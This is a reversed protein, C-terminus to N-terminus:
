LGQFLIWVCTVFGGTWFLSRASGWNKIYCLGYILRCAIFVMAATHVSAPMTSSLNAIIVAAAFFPFAEFSNLQAYHARRQWGELKDQFERVKNNNYRKMNGVKALGTFMIPLFAAILVCIFSINM